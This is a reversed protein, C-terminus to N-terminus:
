RAKTLAEHLAVAQGFTMYDRRNVMRPIAIGERRATMRITGVGVNLVRALAGPPILPADELESSPSKSPKNM